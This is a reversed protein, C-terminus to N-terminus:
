ERADRAEDSPAAPEWGGGLATILQVSALLRNGELTLRTRESSLATAQASAVNLYDLM